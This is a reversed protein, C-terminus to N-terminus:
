AEESSYPPIPTWPTSAQEAPTYSRDPLVKEWVEEGRKWLGYAEGYDIPLFRGRPTKRAFVNHRNLDPM